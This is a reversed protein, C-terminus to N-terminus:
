LIGHLTALPLTLPMLSNRALNWSGSAGDDGTGESRGFALAVWRELPDASVLYGV